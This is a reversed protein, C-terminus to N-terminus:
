KAILTAETTGNLTINIDVTGSLGEGVKYYYNGQPEVTGNTTYITPQPNYNFFNISGLQYTSNGYINATFDGTNYQPTDQLNEYDSLMVAGGWERLIDDFTKNENESSIHQIAYEIADEHVKNNHVIDHLIKVGYNRTLYAGFANVKSYDALSGSWETLSLTNNENFDPYRGHTNGPDGASGDTYEVGRPGNHRIKTSIVEEMTESLMENIWTDTGISTRLITKQYFHIMHQFEHALTSIMEKPWFDDIEWSSGEEKAFLVADAYFMIRENSGSISSSQYNDKSYFYGVVGGNTSDDNDIDTLLIDIQDTEGILNSSQEQADSGWEEGFINTVWDYIDNDSDSKLFTDSLADIMNQTVCKSKSCGSGSDFSDDSVWVNLTKSGFETTVSSVVKRLTAQTTPGSSNDDLYFTQSDGEV